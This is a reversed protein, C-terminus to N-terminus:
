PLLVPRSSRGRTDFTALSVRGSIPFPQTYTPCDATLPSVGSAYRIPLGPFISNARLLGDEVVAGPPPLRYKVGGTLRDLRSLEVQGLANAFAAWGEEMLLERQEPEETRAWLPQPSWAREALALLKPFAMYELRESRNLLQGELQGEIGLVNPEPLQRNDSRRGAVEAGAPDAPALKHLQERYGERPRFEWIKHTDVFGAWFLGPETPDAEYAMEFDLYPATNFVVPLGSRILELAGEEEGSGFWLNAMPNPETGADGEPDTDAQPKQTLMLAAQEGAALQISRQQLLEALRSLFYRPLEDVSTPAGERGSSFLARCDPSEAWAGDPVENGDVHLVELELDAQRYMRALQDVVVEMWHYTSDRCVNVVNDSWGESSLYRSSDGPDSLLFKGATEPEGSLRKQYRAEMSKVAARAHGPLDIEPIVRIHRVASYRLLAVFEESSYFGSGSSVGSDPDPGSGFSPFLRDSEELTHGRHGGVQTLEPLGPIELRWGEDDSLHLHLVNLKYFAMLDLLKRVTEPRQFNRAVDLRLGRYPFRPVDAIDIGPVVFENRDPGSPEEPLLALLSQIGHFAGARDTGVIQIGIAPSTLLGYAEDGSRRIPRGVRVRDRRLLIINPAAREGATVRLEVGMRKELVEALYHAEVELGSGYRIQFGPNLLVKRSTRRWAVPTPILPTVSEPPLTPVNEALRYRSEPTPRTIGQLPPFPLVRTPIRAPISEEGAEDLYLLYFGSPSQSSNVPRGASHFRFRAQASRKLRFDSAPLLRYFDGNLHEFSARAPAASPLMRGSYNFYIVWDSGLIEQSWNSLLLESDFGEEGSASDTLVQWAIGLQEAPPNGPPELACSMLPVFAFILVLRKMQLARYNVLAAPRTAGRRLDVITVTSGKLPM